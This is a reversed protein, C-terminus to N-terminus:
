YLLYERASPQVLRYLIAAAEMRSFGHGPKFTGIEDSGMLVGANYLKFISDSYLNNGTVDPLDTVNNIARLEYSPLAHAFFYALEARNAPRSSVAFGDPLIGNRQAYDVYVQYWPSGQRFQGSGGHYINHVRCALAISEYLSVNEAPKFLSNASGSMLGLEYVQEVRAEYWDSSKVDGFQGSTYTKKAAFNAMSSASSTGGEAPPASSSSGYSQLLTKLGPWNFTDTETLTGNALFHDVMSQNLVLIYAVGESFTRVAAKQTNTLDKLSTTGLDRFSYALNVKGEYLGPGDGCTLTAKAGTSLSSGGGSGIQYGTGNYALRYATTPSGSILYRNTDSVEVTLAKSYSSGSWSSSSPLVVYVVTRVSNGNVPLTVLLQGVYDPVSVTGSFTSGDSFNVSFSDQHTNGAAFAPVASLTFVLCIILVLSLIRKM